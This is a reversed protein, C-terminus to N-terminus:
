PSRDTRARLRRRRCLCAGSIRDYLGSARQEDIIAMLKPERYVAEKSADDWDGNILAVTAKGTPTSTVEELASVFEMEADSITHNGAKYANGEDGTPLDMPDVKRDALLKQLAQPNGKDLDILFNLKDADLLGNNELMRMLKLNPKLAQMKKTYNAGVQM